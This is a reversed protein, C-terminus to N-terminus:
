GDDDDGYDDADYGYDAHGTDDDDDAYTIMSLMTTAMIITGRTTVMMILMDVISELIMLVLGTTVRPMVMVIM